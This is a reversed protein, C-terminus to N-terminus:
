LRKESKRQIVSLSDLAYVLVFTFLSSFAIRKALLWINFFQFAEITFVVTCYIVSLTLAYKIFPWSGISYVTPRVIDTAEDSPIYLKAVPKRIFAIVTAGLANMGPTDSFIDVALGALFGLTMSWNVSFGLPLRFILLIYAFPMAVNWLVMNNFILAQAPILLVFMMIYSLFPSM